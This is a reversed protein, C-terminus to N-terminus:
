LGMGSPLRDCKELVRVHRLEDTRALRRCSYVTDGRLKYTSIVVGLPSMEHNILENVSDIIQTKNLESQFAM